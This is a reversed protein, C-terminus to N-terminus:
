TLLAPREFIYRQLSNCVPTLRDQVLQVTVFGGRHLIRKMNYIIFWTTYVNQVHQKIKYECPTKYM